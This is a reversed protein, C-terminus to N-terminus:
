SVQTAADVANELIDLLRSYLAENGGFKIEKILIAAAMELDDLQQPLSKSPLNSKAQDRQHDPLLDPHAEFVEDHLANEIHQTM